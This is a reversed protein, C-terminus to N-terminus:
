DLRSGAVQRAAHRAGIRLSNTGAPPNPGQHTGDNRFIGVIARMLWGQYLLDVPYSHTVHCPRESGELSEQCLRSVGVKLFTMRTATLRRLM